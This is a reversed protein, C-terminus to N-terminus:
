GNKRGVGRLLEGAGKPRAAVSPAVGELRLATRDGAHAAGSVEYPGDLAAACRGERARRPLGLLLLTRTQDPAPLM